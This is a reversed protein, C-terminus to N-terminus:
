KGFGAYDAAPAATVQSRLSAHCAHAIEEATLIGCFPSMRRLARAEPAPSRLYKMIDPFEWTYVIVKWQKVLRQQDPHHRRWLSLHHVAIGLLRPNRELKDAVALHLADILADSWDPSCYEAFSVQSTNM